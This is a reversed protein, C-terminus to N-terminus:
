GRGLRRGARRRYADGWVGPHEFVVVQRRGRWWLAENLEVTEGGEEFVELCGLINGNKM